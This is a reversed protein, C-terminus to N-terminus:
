SRDELAEAAHAAPARGGRLVLEMGEYAPEPPVGSHTWLGRAREALDDLAADTHLPDHHFLVLSGVEAMRGFTVADSVSSHGWGMHDLYEEDFYQGDHLLVDAGAAIANGSLWDASLSDLAIGLAPEHDPIYALVQGNEEIRYGLTPGPHSIPEAYLRAGGLVWPESPADHFVLRAPIESLEVPFLPASFYRGIRADLSRVSSPPGWVHLETEPNWVPAFFGLGEIHDLHLHTLLLDIRRIGEHELELGLERIGTGADLVLLAGDDLRVEVCSTNGGYRLTERGPTALSGRCGWIRAKM